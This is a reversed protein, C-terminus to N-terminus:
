TITLLDFRANSNITGVGATGTGISKFTYSTFVSSNATVTVKNTARDISVNLNTLDNPKSAFKQQVLYTVKGNVVQGIILKDIIEFVGAFKYNNPDQYDFAIVANSWVSKGNGGAPSVVASINKITSPTVPNNFDVTALPREGQTTRNAFLSGTGNIPNTTVTSFAGAKASIRSDPAINPAVVPGDFNQSFPLETTTNTTTPAVVTLTFTESPLSAPLSKQDTATVKIQLQGIDATAPIGAFAGTTPNFTLWTPLSGGNSLTASYSLVDSDADSFFPTISFGFPVGATATQNTIVFGVPPTNLPTATQAEYAGMDVIGNFPSIRVFPTGRQDGAAPNSVFKNLGKDIAL